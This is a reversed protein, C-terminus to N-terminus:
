WDDAEEVLMHTGFRVKQVEMCQMVIFVREIEKLWM